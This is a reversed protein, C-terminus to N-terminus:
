AAVPRKSLVYVDDNEYGMDNVLHTSNDDALLRKFPSESITFAIMEYQGSYQRIFDKVYARLSVLCRTINDRFESCQFRLNLQFAFANRSNFLNEWKNLNDRIEDAMISFQIRFENKDNNMQGMIDDMNGDKLLRCWLNMNRFDRYIARVKRSLLNLRGECKVFEDTMQKDELAPTGFINNM